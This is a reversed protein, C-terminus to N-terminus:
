EDSILSALQHLDAAIHDPSYEEHSWDREKRNVWVTRLGARAAAIIDNEPDDGASVIEGPQLGSEMCVAAYVAVNPKSMGLERATFVHRFFHAIGIVELDANGNTLAFLEHTVSMRQLAPIVDSYLTVANREAQFVEFAEAAMDPPYGVAEAIHNLAAMRLGTLDHALEPMQHITLQRIEVIQAASFRQTVRPYNDRYWYYLSREARSIVPDIDWLTNDLDLCIARIRHM